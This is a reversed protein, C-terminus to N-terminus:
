EATGSGAAPGTAVAPAESTPPPYTLGLCRALLAAIRTQYHQGAQRVEGIGAGGPGITAMWTHASAPQWRGHQTWLLSNGRGHDTTVILTTRGRYQPLSQLTAWLDALYRDADHAAALYRAYRGEHAYTDTNGFAVYLLRPHRALLYRRAAQYTLSDPRERGNLGADVPLGSRATNLIDAFTEWTAFAAVRGRFGPQQNVYELVTPNPNPLAHNNRIRADDAAGTLLENYGPYSLRARNTVDQRNGLHRNGWLQGRRGASDWLFPLLARRRVPAAGALRHKNPGEFVEQWRLGDITVLVVNASDPAFDAALTQAAM